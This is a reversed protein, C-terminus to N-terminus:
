HNRMKKVLEGIGAEFSIEQRFGLDELKRTRPDM